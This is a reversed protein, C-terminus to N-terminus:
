GNELSKNSFNSLFKYLNVGLQSWAGNPGYCVEKMAEALMCGRVMEMNNYPAKIVKDCHILFCQRIAEPEKNTSKCINMVTKFCNFRDSLDPHKFLYNIAQYVPANEVISVNLMSLHKEYPIDKLSNLLNVAIRNNRFSCEVIKDLTSRKIKIQYKKVLPILLDNIMEEDSLPHIAYETFRSIFAESLKKPQDTTCFVYVYEPLNELTYLFAEACAKNDAFKHVEELLYVVKGGGIPRNNLISNATERATAINNQVTCDIIHLNMEEDIDLEKCLAYCTTTKGSGSQGTFIIKHPLNSNTVGKILSDICEKNGVIESLRKPRESIAWEM